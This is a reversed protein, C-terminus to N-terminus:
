FAEVKAQHFTYDWVTVRYHDAPPLHPVEFYRRGFGGVGRPVWEIRQGVVTGTPDLAQALLRVHDSFGGHQSSVYGRLRRAGGQELEVAWEIKFRYEWGAMLTTTSGSPTLYSSTTGCATPAVAILGLQAVALISRPVMAM